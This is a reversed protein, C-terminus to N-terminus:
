GEAEPQSDTLRLFADELTHQRRLELLGADVAVRAVQERVDTEMSIGYEGDPRAVVALVGAVNELAQKLAESPRAVAISLESQAAALQGVTDQAVLHGEHIIIVRDCIAEIEPLVHSSLLVTTEGEALQRILERIDHRQSPDLGSVPEDLILVAPQHILAQALGVRQRYGKSLNGIRRHKMSGLGTQVLVQEVADGVGTVGKMRACFTLFRDVRMDSYLPPTEPLYGIQEKVKRPQKAVDMGGVFVAGKDAGLAGALVRMTTTKGAGNKGLLGVIEGRAVEFSIDDVALTSGYSRSLNHVRIM